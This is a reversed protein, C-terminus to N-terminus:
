QFVGGGVVSYLKDNSFYGGREERIVGCFFNIMM